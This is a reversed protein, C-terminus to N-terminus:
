RSWHTPDTPRWMPWYSSGPASGYKYWGHAQPSTETASLTGGWVSLFSSHGDAFSFIAGAGHMERVRQDNLINGGWRTQTADGSHREALLCKQSKLVVQSERLQANPKVANGFGVKTTAFYVGSYAYTLDLSKGVENTAPAAPCVFINVRGPLSKEVYDTLAANWKRNPYWGEEDNLYLQFVLAHQKSNSLCSVTKAQTMASRLAPLLLGALVSIIAIVVLLEVLTFGDRMKKQQTRM